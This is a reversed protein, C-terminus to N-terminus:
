PKGAPLSDAPPSPPATPAATTDRPAAAKPELQVGDVQGQIEVRDVGGAAGDKMLVLIRNGRAYNLSPVGPRTPDFVQYFSSADKWSEVRHVVTKSKGATDVKAFRATVTDGRLWDRQASTTDDGSAVWAKGFARAETLVKEPTDLALSDATIEYAASIAHPRLTSGWALTQELVRANVDLGITDADLTWDASIAKGAGDAQVYTLDNQELKLNIRTGFLSFPDKGLGNIQAGGILAGDQGPGTDLRMSDASAAVDSRNITVRGGAWLRDEGKMRVRDGVIVYAEQEAGSSDRPVYDIIPRGNAFVEVTDRLGPVVRLYDLSPGRLTSGGASRTVVNGRAEWREGARRYTGLDTTMVMSSDEYRVNGIFEVIQSAYSALSDSRIKVTTGRCSLRVNGGAFYNDTGLGYGRDANDLVLRCRQEAQQAQAAGAALLAVGATAVIRLRFGM